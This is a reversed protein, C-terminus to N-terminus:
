ILILRLIEQGGVEEKSLIITILSNCIEINGIVINVILIPIALLVRGDGMLLCWFMTLLVYM